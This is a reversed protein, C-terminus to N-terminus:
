RHRGIASSANSNDQAASRTPSGSTTETLAIGAADKM